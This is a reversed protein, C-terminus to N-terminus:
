IASPPAITIIVTTGPNEAELFSPKVVVSINSHYLENMLKVRTEINKMGM